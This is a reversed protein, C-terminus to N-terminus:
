EDPNPLLDQIISLSNLNSLSLVTSEYSQLILGHSQYVFEPENIGFNPDVM